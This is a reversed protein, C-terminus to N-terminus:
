WWSAAEEGDYFANRAPVRVHSSSARVLNAPYSPLAPVADVASAKMYGFVVNPYRDEPPSTLAVIGAWNPRAPVATSEDAVPMRNRAAAISRVDHYIFFGSVLIAAAAAAVVFRRLTIIRTRGAREAYAGLLRGLREATLHRDSPALEELSTLLGRHGRRLMALEARCGPCAAVHQEVLAQQESGITGEVLALLSESVERCEM